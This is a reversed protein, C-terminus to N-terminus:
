ACRALRPLSRVPVFRVATKPHLTKRKAFDVVILEQRDITVPYAGFTFYAHARTDALQGRPGSTFVLYRGAIRVGNDVVNIGAPTFVRVPRAALSPTWWLSRFKASPYAVAHGDTFLASIGRLWKLAPPTAVLAGTRPNAALMRTLRGPALSEPWVVKPGAVFFPGQPHGTRIIRDAGTALDYVHVEAQGGAGTGQSWTALGARVDPQRWTSPWFNGDSDRKAAGIQKLRGTQSDWAFTTFDDFTELSHYENWVLWRGGFSGDVQDNRASPFSRIRTVRSTRADVRVVGSFAPSYLEAFFHRGDGAGAIPFLSAHRSLTVVSGALLGHWSAPQAVRCWALGASHAASGLLM